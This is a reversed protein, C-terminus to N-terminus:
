VEAILSELERRIRKPVETGMREKDEDTATELERKIDSALVQVLSAMNDVLHSPVGGRRWLWNFAVSKCRAAVPCPEHPYEDKEQPAKARPRTPKHVPDDYRNQNLYTTPMPVYKGSFQEDFDIQEQLKEILADKKKELGDRKWIKFAGGKAKRRYSPYCEWWREFGPTYDSM